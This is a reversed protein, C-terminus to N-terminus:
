GWQEAMAEAIGKFTRGRMKSNRKYNTYPQAEARVIGTPQLLPLNELWLCTTKIWPEKFMWPQIIQDPKRLQTNIAGAPNEICKKEIPANMIYEVFKLANYQHNTGFARSNARTLWDCPPFAIVMDWYDHWYLYKSVDEQLHYQRYEGIGPELDCSYASHGRHRFADRVRGSWECAVLVRM